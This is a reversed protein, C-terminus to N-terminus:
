HMSPVATQPDAYQTAIQGNQILTKMMEPNAVFRGEGHSFALDHVEGLEFASLWPSSNNSVVTSAIRAVHRRISNLTLTPSDEPPSKIEGYPLLGSKILAQFGNCIGLILGDNALFDSVADSIQSSFLVNAIFKGSGDPEDGASFGGSFVLIQSRRIKEAFDALSEEIDAHSRNRIVAEEITGGALRFARATDLESNTGPFVPICVKVESTKHTIPKALALAQAKVAKMSEDDKASYPPHLPYIESLTSLHVKRLENIDASTGAIQLLPESITHGIHLLNANVGLGGDATILFSGYDHAFLDFEKPLEEILCGIRNGIASEFLAQILGGHRISRISRIVGDSTAREIFKANALFQEFDPRGLEDKPTRLIYIQQNASKFEPSVVKDIDILGVAFAIVTPPVDLREFSGSMSDKGGIAATQLQSLAYHCGLLAATPLGWRKSDTGLKPFYEQLSFRLKSIDAGCAVVRAAAETVALDPAQLLMWIVSMVLGFTTFTLVMILPHKQLPATAGTIILLLLLICEVIRM